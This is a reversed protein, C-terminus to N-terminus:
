KQAKKMKQPEDENDAAPKGGDSLSLCRGCIMSQITSRYKTSMTYYMFINVSCNFSEAVFGISWFVQNTNIYRGNKAYDPVLSMVLQNITNPLYCVIFIISILSVMKSARKNKASVEKAGRKKVQAATTSGNSSPASRHDKESVEASLSAVSTKTSADSSVDESIEVQLRGTPKGGQEKDTAMASERWKSTKNLSYVLVATCVAVAVFSCVSFTVGIAFAISDVKERDETFSLVLYSRNAVEDFKQATRSTYFIPAVSATMTIFVGIVFALSRGPTIIERVKFPMAICLCREFTALALVWSSVRSCSLRPLGATLYVIQLPLFPLELQQFLPNYCISLWVACTAIGLDAVALGTLTVTMADQFGQKIFVVINIINAFVGFVSLAQCLIAMNIIIIIDRIEKSILISKEEEESKQELPSSSSLSDVFELSSNPSTMGLGWNNGDGNSANFVPSGEDLTSITTGIVNSVLLSSDLLTLAM